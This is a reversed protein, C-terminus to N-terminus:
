SVTILKNFSVCWNVLPSAAQGTTQGMVSIRYAQLIASPAFTDSDCLCGRAGTVPGPYNGAVGTRAYGLYAGATLAQSWTFTVEAAGTITIATITAGGPDTLEFGYNGPNVIGNPNGGSQVNFQLAGFLTQFTAIGTTGTSTITLPRVPSWTPGYVLAQGFKEGIMRVGYAPIHIAQGPAPGAAHPCHYTSMVLISTGAEHLALQALNSLATAANGGPNATWNAVQTLWLKVATAQGTIPLIAANYDATLQTLAAQYVASQFDAEGHFMPIAWVEFDLGLARAAIVGASVADIVNQFPQTGYKLQDYSYGGVGHGSVLVLQDSGLVIRQGMGWAHDEMPYEDNPKAAVFYALNEAPLPAAEGTEAVSFWTGPASVSPPWNPYLSHNFMVVRTASVPDPTLTGEFSGAPGQWVANSQGISPLHRVKGTLAPLNMLGDLTARWMRSIGDRASRYKVYANRVVEPNYADYTGDTFRTEGTGSVLYITEHALYQKTYAIPEADINNALASAGATITAALTALYGLPQLTQTLGIVVKYDEDTVAWGADIGTYIPPEEMPYPFGEIVAKSNDFDIAIVALGDEDTIGWGLNGFGAIDSGTYILPEIPYFDGAVILEGNFNVGFVIRGDDDSVAYVYGPSDNGIYVPEDAAMIAFMADIPIFRAVLALFAGLNPLRDIEVALGAVKRYLILYTDTGSGGPVTFYSGEATGALGTTTDPYLGNTIGLVWAAAAEAAIEAALADAASVASSSASVGSATAFGAATTASASSAAASGDALVVDVDAASKDAEVLDRLVILAPTIDGPPGTPGPPGQPGDRGIVSIAVGAAGDAAAPPDFILYTASAGPKGVVMKGEAEWVDDSKVVKLHVRYAGSDVAAHAAISSSFVLVGTAAETTHITGQTGSPSDSKFTFVIGGAATVVTMIYDAGSLDPHSGDANAFRVVVSWATDTYLGHNM